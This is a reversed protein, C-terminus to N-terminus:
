EKLAFFKDRPASQAVNVLKRKIEERTERRTVLYRYRASLDIQGSASVPRNLIHQPNDNYSDKIVTTTKNNSNANYTDGMSNVQNVDRGAFINYFQPRGFIRVHANKFFSAEITQYGLLAILAFSSSPLCSM